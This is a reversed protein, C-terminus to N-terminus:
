KFNTITEFFSFILRQNISFSHCFLLRLHCFTFKSQSIFINYLFKFKIHYLFRNCIIIFLMSYVHLICPADMSCRQLIIPPTYSLIQSKSHSVFNYNIFAYCFLIFLSSNIHTKKKLFSYLYNTSVRILFM